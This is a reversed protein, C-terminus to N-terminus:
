ESGPSDTAPLDMHQRIADHDSLNKRCSCGKCDNRQCGPLHETITPRASSM